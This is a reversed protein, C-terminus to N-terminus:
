CQVMMLWDHFCSTIYIAPVRTELREQCHLDGIGTDSNQSHFTRLSRLTMRRSRPFPMFNPFFENCSIRFKDAGLILSFFHCYLFLATRSIHLITFYRPDFLTASLSDLTLPLDPFLLSLAFSKSREGGSGCCGSFFKLDTEERGRTM